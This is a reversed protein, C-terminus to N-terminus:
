KLEYNLPNTLEVNLKYAFHESACITVIIKNLKYFRDSMYSTDPFLM